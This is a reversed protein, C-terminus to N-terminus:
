KADQKKNLNQMNMDKSMDTRDPEVGAYIGIALVFVIAGAIIGGILAKSSSEQTRQEYVVFTQEQERPWSSFDMLSM